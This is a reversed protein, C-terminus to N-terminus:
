ATRRDPLREAHRAIAIVHADPPVPRCRRHSVDVLAAELAQGRLGHLVFSRAIRFLQDNRHGEPIPADGLSPPRTATVPTRGPPDVHEALLNILDQREALPRVPDLACGTLYAFRGVSYVEVKRTPDGDLFGSRGPCPLLGHAFIHIGTGSVSVESWSSVKEVMQVAWAEIIGTDPDRVDDLDVFTLRAASTLAVGFGDFLHPAMIQVERVDGEIRWHSPDANSALRDPHGVQYAPKRIRGGEEHARWGVWGLARLEPPINDM